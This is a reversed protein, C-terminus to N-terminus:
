LLNLTPTGPKGELQAIQVHEVGHLSIGTVLKNKANLPNKLREQYGIDPASFISFQIYLYQYMYGTDPWINIRIEPIRGFISAYIRYGAFYQHM